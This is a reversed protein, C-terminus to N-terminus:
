LHISLLDNSSFAKNCTPCKRMRSSLREKCCDDCFVHGCTKIATSKWNKSCLTCYVLSRFNDLEEALGSSDGSGNSLLSKQLKLNQDELHKIKSALNNKATVEADLEGQLTTYLSIHKSNEEQLNLNIKKQQSIESSLNNQKMVEDKMNNLLSKENNQSLELQKNLNEIKQQYLKDAEKLQSILEYSKQLSKSLNKNEILISDKSRMVAFYKQDAKTKEVTLKSIVNETNLYETYKINITNSIEKFATELDQLENLLADQPLGTSNSNRIEIKDWQTKLISLTSELNTIMASKSTQAELIMNKSLLDDRASRIRVLDKELSANHKKLTDQASEFEKTLTGNYIEMSENLSQFKKLFEDNIKSLKINESTLKDLRQILNEDQLQNTGQNKQSLQIRLTVLEQENQKKTNELNEIVKKLSLIEQDYNEIKIENILKENSAGELDKETKTLTQDKLPTENQEVNNDSTTEKISNESEDVEKQFVRKVTLSDERDYKRIENQYYKKVANIEKTLNENKVLLENKIKNLNKIELKIDITAQDSNKATGYYKIFLKSLADSSEFIGLIDNSFLKDFLEKESVSDCNDKLSLAITSLISLSEALRTSINSNELKALDYQERLCGLQQKYQNMCRYLAEKQFAIVDRRTLPEDPDSLDLKVKKSPPETPM